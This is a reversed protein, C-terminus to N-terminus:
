RDRGTERLFFSRSDSAQKRRGGMREGVFFDDKVQRNVMGEGGLRREEGGKKILFEM